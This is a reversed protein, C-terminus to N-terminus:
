LLLRLWLLSLVLNKVVLKSPFERTLSRESVRFGNLESQILILM